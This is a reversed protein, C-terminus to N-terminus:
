GKESLKKVAAEFSRGRDQYDTFLDFSACAPSLIVNKADASTNVLRFAERVAEEMSITAFTKIGCRRGLELLPAPELALIVLGLVKKSISM